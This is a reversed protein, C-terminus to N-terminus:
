NQDEKDPLTSARCASFDRLRTARSGEIKYARDRRKSDKHIYHTEADLEGPICLLDSDEGPVLKWGLVPHKLHSTEDVCDCDECDCLTIAEEEEWAITPQFNRVRGFRNSGQRSHYCELHTTSKSYFVHSTTVVVVICITDQTMKVSEITMGDPSGVPLFYVGFPMWNGNDSIRAFLVMMDLYHRSKEEEIQDEARCMVVQAVSGDPIVKKHVEVSGRESISVTSCLKEVGAHLQPGTEKRAAECTLGWAAYCLADKGFRESWTDPSLEELIARTKNAIETRDSSEKMELRISALRSETLPESSVNRPCSDVMDHWKVLRAYINPDIRKLRTLREKLEQKGCVGLVAITFGPRLGPYNGSPVVRPMWPRTAVGASAFEERRRMYNALSPRGEKSRKGSLIIMYGDYDDALPALGLRARLRNIEGRDQETGPM